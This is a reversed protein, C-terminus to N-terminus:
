TGPALAAEADVVAPLPQWEVRVLACADEALARSEAVVAVVPEGQWVAKDIALPYQPASKMGPYNKLIGVWPECHAAMEKGTMVTLVGPLARAATTDISRIRAHAHPSRVFAAHAM